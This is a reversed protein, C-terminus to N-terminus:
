VEQPEADPKVGFMSAFADFSQMDQAVAEESRAQGPLPEYMKRKFEDVDKVRQMAWWMIVNCFRDIPLTLYDCGKSAAEGDIAEWHEQAIGLIRVVVEYPPCVM